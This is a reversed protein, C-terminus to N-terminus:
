VTDRHRYISITRCLAARQAIWRAHVAGTKKKKGKKRGKRKKNQKKKTKKQKKTKGTV